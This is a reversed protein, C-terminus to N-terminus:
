RGGAGFHSISSSARKTSVEPKTSSGLQQATWNYM